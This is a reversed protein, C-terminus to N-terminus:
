RLAMQDFVFNDKLHYPKSATFAWDSSSGESHAADLGDAVRISLDLIAELELPRGGIRHKLTTRIVLGM